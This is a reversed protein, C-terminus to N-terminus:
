VLPLCDVRPSTRRGPQPAPVPPAMLADLPGRRLQRRVAADVLRPFLRQLLVFLREPGAPYATDAGALAAAWIRKAIAAPPDTPMDLLALLPELAETAPTRAGRPAAYTVGVGQCRLERRLADSLGRLGYKSACYGAFLPYPIDGLLSGINVVRGAAASLLPLFDRTLALPAMLNTAVLATLTRDDLTSLAGAWVLGANNVLFDLGGAHDRVADVLAGRDEALTVDAPLVLCRTGPRLLAKTADLPPRRRGVLVLGLGRRSAEVALAQGIGSGAGTILATMGSSASDHPM